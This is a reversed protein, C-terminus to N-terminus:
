PDRQEARRNFARQKAPSPSGQRRPGAATAFPRRKPLNGPGPYRTALIPRRGGLGIRIDGQPCLRRRRRCRQRCSIQLRRRMAVSLPFRCPRLGNHFFTLRFNTGDPDLQAAELSLANTRRQTYATTLQMFDLIRQACGMGAVARGRWGGELEGVRYAFLRNPRRSGRRARRFVHHSHYRRGLCPSAYYQRVQKTHSDRALKGTDLIQSSTPPTLTAFEAAASKSACQFSVRLRRWCGGRGGTFLAARYGRHDRASLSARSNLLRATRLPQQVMAAPLICSEPTAPM